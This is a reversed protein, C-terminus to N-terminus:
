ELKSQQSVSTYDMIPSDAEGEVKVGTVEESDTKGGVVYPKPLPPPPVPPGVLDVKEDGQPTVNPRTNETAKFIVEQSSIRDASRQTLLTAMQDINLQTLHEQERRVNEATIIQRDAGSIANLFASNEKIRILSEKKEKLELRTALKALRTIQAHLQSYNLDQIKIKYLLSDAIYPSSVM